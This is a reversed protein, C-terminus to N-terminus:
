PCVPECANPHLVTLSLGDVQPNIAGNNLALTNNGYGTHFAASIGFGTNGVITNGLITGGSIQIGLALNDSVINDGVFCRDGCVIGSGGNKTITSDRISAARANPLYIGAKKNGAVRMSEIIWNDGFGYIGGLGTFRTITGNRITLGGNSGTIGVAAVSAGNLEFGNLDVTVNNATVRIGIKAASPYINSAFEYAGPRSLTVPFGPADGPTVGGAAAKAQTIIIEGAAFVPNAGLIALSVALASSLVRNTTM